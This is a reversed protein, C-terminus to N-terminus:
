AQWGGDGLLSIWSDPDDHEVNRGDPTPCMTDLAWEMMAAFSPIPVWKSDWLMCYLSCFPVTGLSATDGNM